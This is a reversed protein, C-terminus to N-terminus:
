YLKSDHGAKCNVAERIDVMFLSAIISAIHDNKILYWERVELRFHNPIAAYRVGAKPADLLGDYILFRYGLFKNSRTAVLDFYAKKGEITGFLNTHKFNESILLENLSEKNWITFWTDILQRINM